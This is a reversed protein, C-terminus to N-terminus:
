VTLMHGLVSACQAAWIIPVIVYALVINYTHFMHANQICDFRLSVNQKRRQSSGGEGKMIVGIYLGSLLACM